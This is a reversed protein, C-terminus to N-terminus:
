QHGYEYGDQDDLLYQHEAHHRQRGHQRHQPEAPISVEPVQQGRALHTRDARCGRERRESGVHRAVIRRIDLLRGASGLQLVVGVPVVGLVQHVGHLTGVVLPSLTRDAPLQDGSLCGADADTDRCAYGGRLEEDEYLNPRGFFRM